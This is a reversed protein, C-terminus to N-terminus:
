AKGKLRRFQRCGSDTLMWTKVLRGTLPTFVYGKDELQVLWGRQGVVAKIDDERLPRDHNGLAVIAREQGPTLRGRSKAYPDRAIAM